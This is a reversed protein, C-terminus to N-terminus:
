QRGVYIQKHVRLIHAEMESSHVFTFSRLNFLKTDTHQLKKESHLVFTDINSYM